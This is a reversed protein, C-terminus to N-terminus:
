PIWSFVKLNIKNNLVYIEEDALLQQQINEGKENIRMVSIKGQSNIVRHWPISSEQDLHKLVYGVLRAHKPIGALKAIQGYTAVKGYPILAIVELIQRHLENSDKM